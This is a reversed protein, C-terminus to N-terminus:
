DVIGVVFFSFVGFMFSCSCGGYMNMGPAVVIPTTHV